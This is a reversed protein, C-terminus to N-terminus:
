PSGLTWETPGAARLDTWIVTKVTGPDTSVIVFTLRQEDGTVTPDTAYASGTTGLALRVPASFRGLPPPADAERADPESADAAPADPAPADPEPPRKSSVTGCAALAVCLGIAFRSM